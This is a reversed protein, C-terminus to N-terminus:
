KQREHCNILTHERGKDIAFNMYHLNAIQTNNTACFLERDEGEVKKIQSQVTVDIYVM